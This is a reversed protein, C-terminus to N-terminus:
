GMLKVLCVTDAAGAAAVAYGAPINNTSTATIKDAAADYYVAAGLTIAASDKALEFVGVMHITGVAGVAINTGAIGIHTGLSVVAGAAISTSGGNTYDLTEGRQSYKAKM